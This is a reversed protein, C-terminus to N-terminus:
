KVSTMECEGVMGFFFLRFRPPPDDGGGFLAFVDATWGAGKAATPAALSTAAATAAAQVAASDGWALDVEICSGAAVDVADVGAAASMLDVVSLPGGEAASAVTAAAAVGQEEKPEEEFTVM